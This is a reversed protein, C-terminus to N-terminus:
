GKGQGGGAGKDERGRSREGGRGREREGEKLCPKVIHGMSTELKFDEQRLKRRYRFLIKSVCDDRPAYPTNTGLCGM